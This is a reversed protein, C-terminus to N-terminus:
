GQAIAETVKGIDTSVKQLFALQELLPKDTPAAALAPTPELFRPEAPPAPAQPQLRALSKQLATAASALARRSELAPAPIARPVEPLAATLSAINSTLIHNLVVFEHIERPHRQTSKPESLMRQFAAALNASAVYVEKRLLKYATPAPPRGGLRDALQRLYALNAKLVAAMFDHLQESEWRPFLFYGAAFAIGCGMLTDIVREEFIGLYGLGLFSFLVLVCVTLFLVSVAYYTRQVSFAVLMCGLLVLLRGEAQPLLWLLAAGLAGGALTGVIRQVNRQRTLSFGPKLMVTVTMLIWYSHRGQWLTEALTFALVCALMMRVAHRFVASHRTLNQRFAGPELDQHAVFRAHEAARRRNRQPLLSEDFYRRINEVRKIIDRLNVLIKRLVRTRGAAKPEADLAAVHSQLQALGAGLNGSPRTYPRGAQIAAGLHDIEAGIERILRSVEPLIGSEGFVARVHAYDYHIATVHEFLDVTEVFTLVLRRGTSTSENVIQRTRFLLERVAEQKENVVVQQAVLRRFDDDLDTSPDYFRAKLDLFYALAHVCEGVAQQAPRYPQVRHVLLALGMYWAGGLGLQLAHPLVEALPLPRALTLVMALLAATGVAAARAGWVLLMTFVFAQLAVAAGLLWPQRAVLGTLVSALLVFGLAALMGNRKHGVPGPMDTISLCLAGTSITLGEAFHGLQALVLAPLLISLTIRVGDSFNQGFFFYHLRRTQSNM